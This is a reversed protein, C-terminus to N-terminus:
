FFLIFMRHDLVLQYLTTPRLIYQILFSLYAMLPNHQFFIQTYLHKGQLLFYGAMYNNFEDIFNFAVAHQYYVYIIFILFLPSLIVLIINSSKSLILSLSTKLKPM